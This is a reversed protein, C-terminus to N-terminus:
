HLIKYIMEKQLDATSVMTSVEYGKSKMDYERLIGIIEYLKTPTYKKAATILNKAV